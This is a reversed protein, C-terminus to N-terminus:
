TTAWRTGGCTSSRAPAEQCRSAGAAPAAPRGSVSFDRLGADITALVENRRAAPSIRLRGGTIADRLQDAHRSLRFFWNDEALWAPATLHEPCRGGDLDDPTLYHECGVCYLGEYRDRYLDGAAACAQWLAAV